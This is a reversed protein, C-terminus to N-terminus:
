RRVSVATPSSDTQTWTTMVSTGSSGFVVVVTAGELGFHASRPQVPALTFSSAGPSVKTSPGTVIVYSPNFEAVTM